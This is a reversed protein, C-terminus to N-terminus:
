RKMITEDYTMLGEAVVTMAALENADLETSAPHDGVKLLKAAQDPQQKFEAIQEDFLQSLIQQEQTNPTRSTLVRFVFALQEHRNTSHKIAREALARAAEVYQPDNLLVLMQLPTLTSQRRVTCVERSTADFSMM